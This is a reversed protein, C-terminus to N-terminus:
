DCGEHWDERRIVKQGTWIINKQMWGHVVSVRAGSPL